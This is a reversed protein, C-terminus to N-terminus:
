SGKALTAKAARILERFEHGYAQRWQKVLFSKDTISKHSLSTRTTFLDGSSSSFALHAGEWQTLKQRLVKEAIPRNSDLNANFLVYYQNYRLELQVRTGQVPLKLASLKEKLKPTTLSLFDLKPLKRSEQNHKAAENFYYNANGLSIQPSPASVTSTSAPPSGRSAAPKFFSAIGSLRAKPTRKPKRGNLCDDIHKTQLVEATMQDGCIPCDVIDGNDPITVTENPEVKRKKSPVEEDSIEIVDSPEESRKSGEISGGSDKVAQEEPKKELQQLIHPRLRSYCTVIEELLIHRKLNSEFLETKCLPCSNNTILYERICQSCFTHNCSTIVPARFFEKCIYCRQLTDLEALEPLLSTKWDSPDTISRL